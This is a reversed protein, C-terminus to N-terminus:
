MLSGSYIYIIENGLIRITFSREKSNCELLGESSLKPEGHNEFAYKVKLTEGEELIEYDKIELELVKFRKARKRKNYSIEIQETGFTITGYMPILDPERANDIGDTLFIADFKEIQAAFEDISEQANLGSVAFFAFLFVILSKM